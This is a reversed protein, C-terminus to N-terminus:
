HARGIVHLCETYFHPCEELPDIRYEGVEKKIEHYYQDRMSIRHWKGQYEFYLSNGRNNDFHCEIQKENVFLRSKVWVIGRRKNELNPKTAAPVVIKIQNFYLIM